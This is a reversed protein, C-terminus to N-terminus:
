VKQNVMVVQKRVPYDAELTAPFSPLLFIGFCLSNIRCNDRSSHGSWIARPLCHHQHTNSPAASLGLFQGLCIRAQAPVCSRIVSDDIMFKSFSESSSNIM